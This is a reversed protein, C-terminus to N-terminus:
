LVTCTLKYHQKAFRFGLHSLRLFLVTSGIFVLQSRNHLYENFFNVTIKGFGFYEVKTCMLKHNIEDISVDATGLKKDSALIINDSLNLLATTTPVLIEELGLNIFHHLVLHKLM